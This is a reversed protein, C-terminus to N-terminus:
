DGTGISARWKDLVEPLVKPDHVAQWGWGEMQEPRTGTYEYWRQNYWSIHGDPNAMWCLEPLSNALTRFDEESKRRAEEAQQRATLDLSVGLIGILAGDEDM